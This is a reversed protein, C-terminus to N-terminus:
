GAFGLREREVEGCWWWGDQEEVVGGGPGSWWAVGGGGPRSWWAVDGGGPGSWWTAVGGHGGGAAQEM